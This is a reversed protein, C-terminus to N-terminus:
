ITCIVSKRNYLFLVLFTKIKKMFDFGKGPAMHKMTPLPYLVGMELGVGGKTGLGWKLFYATDGMGGMGGMGWGCRGNEVRDM